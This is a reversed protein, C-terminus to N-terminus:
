EVRIKPHAALLNPTSGALTIPWPDLGLSARTVPSADIEIWATGGARRLQGAPIKSHEWFFERMAQKTWGLGAMTQAVVQPIMLIGPAGQPFTDIPLVDIDPFDAELLTKLLPLTRFAQWQEHSVFGIRKGTLSALRPAHQQTVEIAGSPDYFELEVM